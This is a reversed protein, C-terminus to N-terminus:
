YPFLESRSLLLIHQLAPILLHRHFCHLIAMWDIGVRYPKGLTLQGSMSTEGPSVYQNFFLALFTCTQSLAHGRARLSFPMIEIPYSYCMPTYQLSSSYTYIIVLHCPPNRSVAISFFGSFLFLFAVVAYGAAVSGTSAYTASCATIIVLNVLLGATSTLWLPRRGLKEVLLAGLVALLWNWIQLGGNLGAQQAPIVIGVTRMIAAFYYSIVGMGVWQSGFGLSILIWLRRRNGKNSVFTRYSTGTPASSEVRIANIIEAFEYQVLPDHQDGNAHYQALM